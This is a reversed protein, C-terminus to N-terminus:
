SRKGKLFAPAEGRAKRDAATRRAARSRARATLTERQRAIAEAVESELM